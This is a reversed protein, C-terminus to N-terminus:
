RAARVASIRSAIRADPEARYELAVPQWRNLVAVHEKALQRVVDDMNKIQTGCSRGFEPVVDDCSYHWGTRQGESLWKRAAWGDLESLAESPVQATVPDRGKHRSHLRPFLLANLFIAVLQEQEERHTWLFQITKKPGTLFRPHADVIGTTGPHDDLHM